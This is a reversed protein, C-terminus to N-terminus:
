TEKIDFYEQKPADKQIQKQRRKRNGQWDKYYVQVKWNKGEKYVGM